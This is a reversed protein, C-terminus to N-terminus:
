EKSVEIFELLDCEVYKNENISFIESWTERCSIMGISGKKYVEIAHTYNNLIHIVEDIDMDKECIVNIKDSSDIYNRPRRYQLKFRKDPYEKKLIEKILKTEQRM